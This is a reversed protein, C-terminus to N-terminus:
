KPTIPSYNETWSSGVLRKRWFSHILFISSTQIAPIFILSLKRLDDTGPHDIYSMSSETAISSISSISHLTDKMKGGNPNATTDNQTYTPVVSIVNEMLKNFNEDEDEEYHQELRRKRVLKRSLARFKKSIRSLRQKIRDARNDVWEDISKEVDLDKCIITENLSIVDSDLISDIKKNQINKYPLLYLQNQEQRFNQILFELENQFDSITIHLFSDRLFVKSNAIFNCQLWERIFRSFYSSRYDLFGM